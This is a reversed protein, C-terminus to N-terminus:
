FDELPFSWNDPRNAFINTVITCFIIGAHFKTSKHLKVHRFRHPTSVLQFIGGFAMKLCPVQDWDEM